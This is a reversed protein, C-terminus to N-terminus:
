SNKLANEFKRVADDWTFRRINEYGSQSIRKMDKENEILHILNGALATSEGPPSLLATDGHRAYDKVGGIDTACVACKCAMAEAPTLASGDVLSASLWIDCSCYIERLKAGLPRYHYEYEMDPWGPDPVTGFMTLRLEPHKQKAINFAKKADKVGKWRGKHYLMGVRRPRNWTKNECYFQSHDIPNPILASVRQGFKEEALDKLWRAIVIKKLPLTWSKNVLEEPGDWTEYSQIFYFKRGKSGPFENVHFATKWASAIITDGDPIYKSDFESVLILDTKLDFWKVPNANMEGAGSGPYFIMDTRDSRLSGPITSIVTIDHGMDQLRNAYEFIVKVGGSIGIHPSLFHIKM